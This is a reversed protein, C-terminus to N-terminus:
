RWLELSTCNLAEPYLLVTVDTMTLICLTCFNLGADAVNVKNAM